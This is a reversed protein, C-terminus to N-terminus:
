GFLKMKVKNATGLFSGSVIASSNGLIIPRNEGYDGSLTIQGSFDAEQEMKLDVQQDKFRLVSIDHDLVLKQRELGMYKLHGVVTGATMLTTVELAKKAQKVLSDAAEYDNDDNMVVGVITVDQGDIKTKNAFMVGHGALDTYGTKLGIYGKYDTILKNINTIEGLYPLEATETGVVEALLPNNLALIAIKTLDSASSTTGEDLGSADNGITTQTLGHEKCYTQAAKKYEAFSGFYEKAFSDAINNGSLMILGQLLQKFTVKEGLELWMNSGGENITKELQDIWDQTITITEGDDNEAVPHKELVVLSTLVKIMSATPLSNTTGCTKYVGLEVTGVAAAKADTPCKWDVKEINKESNYANNLENSFSYTPPFIITLGMVVVLVLIFVLFLRLKHFRWHVSKKQSLKNNM